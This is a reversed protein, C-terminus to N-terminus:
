KISRDRGVILEKFHALPFEEVQNAKSGSLHRLVIREMTTEKQFHIRPRIELFRNHKKALVARKGKSRVGHIAPNKSDPWRM